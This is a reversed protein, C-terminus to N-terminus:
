LDLTVTVSAGAEVALERAASGRVIALELRGQSDFLAVLERPLAAAYTPVLGRITRHACSVILRATEGVAQVDGRSLNTILNGFSDVYLVEGSVGEASKQPQPWRLTHLGATPPGLDDPSAGLALHAAVPAMIDRGHFTQSAGPLWFSDNDLARIRQPRQRSALLSLLGNDPAIYRQPGIEAFLIPRSTGVGPDVVAVHITGDPFRPTADALVVAGERINQPGIAHSIDVLDVERCLSLIVGKMQAVYPSGTGFDTTLTILPRSM